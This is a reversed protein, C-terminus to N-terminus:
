LATRVKMREAAGNRSYAMAWSEGIEPTRTPLVETFDRHWHRSTMGRGNGAGGGLLKVNLKGGAFLM